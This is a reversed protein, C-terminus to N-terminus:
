WRWTAQVLFHGDIGCTFSWSDARQLYLIRWTQTVLDISAAVALSWQDLHLCRRRNCNASCWDSIGNQLGHECHIQLSQTPKQILCPPLCTKLVASLLPLALLASASSSVVRRTSETQSTGGPTPTSRNSRAPPATPTNISRPLTASPTSAMCQTIDALRSYNQSSLPNSNQGQITYPISSGGPFTDWLGALVSVPRKASRLQSNRSPGSKQQNQGNDLSRVDRVVTTTDSHHSKSHM